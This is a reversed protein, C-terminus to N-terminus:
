SWWKRLGNCGDSLRVGVLLREMFNDGVECTLVVDGMPAGVFRDGPAPVRWDIVMLNKKALTEKIKLVPEKNYVSTKVYTNSPPM